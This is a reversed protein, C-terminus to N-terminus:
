LYANLDVSYQTELQFHLGTTPTELAVSEYEAADRRQTLMPSCHQNQVDLIASTDLDTSVM